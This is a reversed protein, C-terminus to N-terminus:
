VGAEPGPAAGDKEAAQGQGTDAPKWFSSLGQSRAMWTGVGRQRRGEESAQWRRRDTPACQCKSHLQLIEKQSIRMQGTERSKLGAPQRVSRTNKVIVEYRSHTMIFSYFIKVISKLRSSHLLLRLCSGPRRFHNNFSGLAAQNRRTHSFSLHM